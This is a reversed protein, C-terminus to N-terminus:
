QSMKLVIQASAHQEFM